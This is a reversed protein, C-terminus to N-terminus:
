SFAQVAETDTIAETVHIPVENSETPPAPWVVEPTARSTQLLRHARRNMFIATPKKGVPHLSIAEAIMADTLEHDFDVNAIRSAAEKHWQLGSWATTGNTYATFLQGDDDPVQQVMWEDNMRIEGDQGWVPYVGQVHNWILYASTCANATDGAANVGMADVDILTHLGDFGEDTESNLGYYFQNAWAELAGQFAGAAEDTLLSNRGFEHADAVAKDVRMQADLIFCQVLRKAYTSSTAAVGANARRFGAVPRSTRVTANYSTGRITRGALVRFEPVVRLAEEILGVVQDSGNRMAIDLLTLFDNM